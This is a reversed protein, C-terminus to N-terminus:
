RSQVQYESRWVDKVRAPDHDLNFVVYAANVDELVRVMGSQPMRGHRSEPWYADLREVLHRVMPDILTHFNRDVFRWRRANTRHVFDYPNATDDLRTSAWRKTADRLPIPGGRDRIPIMVFDKHHGEIVRPMDSRIRARPVADCYISLQEVVGITAKDFLDGWREAFHAAGTRERVYAALLEHPNVTPRGHRVQRCAYAAMRERTIPATSAWTRLIRM